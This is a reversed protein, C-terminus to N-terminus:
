RKPDFYGKNNQSSFRVTPGNSSRVPPEPSTGASQQNSGPSALQQGQQQNWTQEIQQQQWPQQMPQQSPQWQQQLPQQMPQQAPNQWQQHMPQQAPQQWLPPQSASATPHLPADNKSVNHILVFAIAIFALDVAMALLAFLDNDVSLATDYFGHEIVPLLYALLYYSRAGAANGHLERQRALGFFVGMVVGDAMHGPVSFIARTFAVELGGDFVYFINELAAFGLAAAVSYVVADFVYNFEPNKRVTNLGFYKCGEEVAAVGVFYEIVILLMGAPIVAEFVDFLVGEVLAAVIGSAAGLLFVRLVLGIPEPEAKDKRYVYWMLAIAPILAAALLTNM